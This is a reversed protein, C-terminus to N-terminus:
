QKVGRTDVWKVDRNPQLIAEEPDILARLEAFWQGAGGQRGAHVQAVAYAYVDALELLPPKADVAAVDPDLRPPETEPGFDLYIGRTGDARRRGPGWQIKTPRSRDV